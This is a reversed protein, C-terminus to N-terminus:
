PGRRSVTPLPFCGPRPEVPGAQQGWRGGLREPGLPAQSFPLCVPQMEPSLSHSPNERLSPPTPALAPPAHHRPSSPAPELPVAPAQAEGASQAELKNFLDRWTLDQFFNNYRYDVSGLYRAVPHSGALRPSLTLTHPGWACNRAEGIVEAGLGQDGLFRSRPRRPVCIVRGSWPTDQLGSPRERQPSPDGRCRLGEWSVSKNAVYQTLRFIPNQNQNASSKSLKLLNIVLGQKASQCCIWSSM